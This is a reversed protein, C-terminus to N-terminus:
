MSRRLGFVVSEVGLDAGVGGSKRRFEVEALDQLASVLDKERHNRASEYKKYLAFPHPRQRVLGNEKLYEGLAQAITENFRNYPLPRSLDIKRLRAFSVIGLLQRIEDALPFLFKGYHIDLPTKPDERKSQAVLDRLKAIAEGSKGESVLSTFEYRAGGAVVSVQEDVVAPTVRGGGGVFTAIREAEGVASRLDPIERSFKDALMREMGLKQRLLAVAAADFKVGHEDAIERIAEDLARTFQDRTLDCVLVVGARAIAAITASDEPIEGSRMLLTTGSAGGQAAAEALLAADGEGRSARKGANRATALMEILVGAPQGYGLAEAIRSDKEELDAGVLGLVHLLKALSSSRKRDTKASSWDETAKELLSAIERKTVFANIEPVMLLRRGGFLSFTRYSDVVTGLDAGESFQEVRLSPDANAIAQRIEAFARDVLYDNDGGVLIMPPIQTKAITELLPALDRTIM